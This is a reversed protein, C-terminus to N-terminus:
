QLERLKEDREELEVQEDRAKAESAGLQLTLDQYRELVQYVFDTNIRYREVEASLESRVKRAEHIAKRELEEQVTKARSIIREKEAIDRAWAIREEALNATVCKLDDEAKNKELLFRNERVGVAHLQSELHNKEDVLEQITMPAQRLENNNHMWRRRIEGLRRPGSVADVMTTNMLHENDLGEVYASDAPPYAREVWHHVVPPFVLRSSKVIKWNPQYRKDPANPDWCVTPLYLDDLLSGGDNSFNGSTEGTESVTTDKASTSEGGASTAPMDGWSVPFDGMPSDFMSAPTSSSVLPKPVPNTTVM